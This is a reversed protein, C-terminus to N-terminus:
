RSPNDHHDPFPRRFLQDAKVDPGIPHYSSSSTAASMFPKEEHSPDSLIHYTKNTHPFATASRALLLMVAQSVDDAKSFSRLYRKPVLANM